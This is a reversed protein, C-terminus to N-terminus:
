REDLNIDDKSHLQPVPEIGYAKQNNVPIYREPNEAMRIITDLRSLFLAQEKNANELRTILEDSSTQSPLIDGNEDPYITSVIIDDFDFKGNYVPIGIDPYKTDTHYKEDVPQSVNFWVMNPSLGDGEIYNFNNCVDQYQKVNEIVNRSPLHMNARIFRILKDSLEAIYKKEINLFDSKLKGFDQQINEIATELTNALNKMNNFQEKDINM